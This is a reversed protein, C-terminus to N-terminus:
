AATGGRRMWPKLFEANLAHIAQASPEHEGSLQYAATRVSCGIVSALNEATKVPWIGKCAAGFSSRCITASGQSLNRQIEIQNERSAVYSAPRM